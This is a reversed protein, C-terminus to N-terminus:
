SFTLLPVRLPAPPQQKGQSEAAGVQGCLGANGPKVAISGTTNYAPLPGEFASVLLAATVAFWALALAPQVVVQACVLDLVLGCCEDPITGM